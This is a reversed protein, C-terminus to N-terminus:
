KIILDSITTPMSYRVIKTTIMNNAEITYYQTDNVKTYGTIDKGVPLYNVEDFGKYTIQINYATTLSNSIILDRLMLNLKAISIDPVYSIFEDLTIKKAFNSLDVHDSLDIGKGLISKDIFYMKGTNTALCVGGTTLNIMSGIVENNTYGVGSEVIDGDNTLIGNYVTSCIFMVNGNELNIAKNNTYNGNNLKILKKFIGNSTIISAYTPGLLLIDKNTMEIMGYVGNLSYNSMTERIPLVQNGENNYITLYGNNGYQGVGAVIFTGNDLVVVESISNVSGFMYSLYKFITGDENIITAMSSSSNTIFFKGNSLKRMISPAMTGISIHDLIVTGAQNIIDFSGDYFLIVINGNNLKLMSVVTCQSARLYNNGVTYILTNGSQSLAYVRSDATGVLINGNDLEVVSKIDSPNLSNYDKIINGELDTIICGGNTGGIFVTKNSLELAVPNGINSTLLQNTVAYATINNLHIPIINVICLTIIVSLLTFLLRKM